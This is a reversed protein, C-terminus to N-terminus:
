PSNDWEPQNKRQFGRWDWIQALSVGFYRRYKSQCVMTKTGKFSSLCVTFIILGLYTMLVSNKISQQLKCGEKTVEITSTVCILRIRHFRLFSSRVKPSDQLGTYLGIRPIHQGQWLFNYVICPAFLFPVVMM